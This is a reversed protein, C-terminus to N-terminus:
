PDGNQKFLLPQSNEDLLELFFTELLGIKELIQDAERLREEIEVAAKNLITDLGFTDNKFESVPVRFFPYFGTPFFSVGITLIIGQQKM